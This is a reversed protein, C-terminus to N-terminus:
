NCVKEIYKLIEDVNDSEFEPVGGFDACILGNAGLDVFVRSVYYHGEREEDEFAVLYRHSHLGYGVYKFADHKRAFAFDKKEMLLGTNHLYQFIDDITKERMPNSMAM